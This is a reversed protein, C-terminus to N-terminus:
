KWKRSSTNNCISPVIRNPNVQADIQPATAKLYQVMLVVNSRAPDQSWLTPPESDQTDKSYHGKSTASNSPHKSKLCQVVYPFTKLSLILYIHSVHKLCFARHLCGRRCGRPRPPHLHICTISDPPQDSSKSNAGFRGGWM